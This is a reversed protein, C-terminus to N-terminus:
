ATAGEATAAPRAVTVHGDGHVHVPCGCRRCKYGGHGDSDHLPYECQPCARRSELELRWRLASEIKPIAALWQERQQPTARPDEAYLRLRRIMEIQMTSRTGGESPIDFDPWQPVEPKPLQKELRDIRAAIGM